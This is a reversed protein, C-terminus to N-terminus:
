AHGGPVQLDSAGRAVTQAPRKGALDSAHAAANDHNATGGTIARAVPHPAAADNHFAARSTV